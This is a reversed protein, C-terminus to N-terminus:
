RCKNLIFCRQVECLKNWWRYINYMSSAERHHIFLISYKLKISQAWDRSDIEINNHISWQRTLMWHILHRDKRLICMHLCSEGFWVLRQQSNTKLIFTAEHICNAKPYDNNKQSKNTFRSQKLKWPMQKEM